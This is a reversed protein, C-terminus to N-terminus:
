RLRWARWQMPPTTSPLPSTFCPIAFSARQTRSCLLTYVGWCLERCLVACCGGGFLWGFGGGTSRKQAVDAALADRKAKIGELEKM